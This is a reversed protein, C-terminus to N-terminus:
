LKYSTSFTIVGFNCYWKYTILSVAIKTYYRKRSTLGAAM